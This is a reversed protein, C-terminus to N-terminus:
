QCERRFLILHEENIRAKQNFSKRNANLTRIWRKECVFGIDKCLDVFIDGVPVANGQVIADGIVVLARGGNQLIRYWEKFCKEMDEFYPDPKAKPRTFVDHKGIELDRAFSIDGNIWHLRHRHYKHYDYANLYPPSTVILKISQDSLFKLQRSDDLHIECKAKSINILEYLRNITDGLKTQFWKIASKPSYTKPVRTYRTDSDQHSARVIISSFVALALTRPKEPLNNIEARLLGLDRIANDEFWYNISKYDPILCKKFEQLNKMCDLKSKFDLLISLDKESYPLTKAKSILYAVANNDVGIAPRQLLISELLATGCGCFPDLILDGPQSWNLIAQRPIQPIFRAPYTHLAHIHEQTNVDHFNWDIGNIRFENVGEKSFIAARKEIM